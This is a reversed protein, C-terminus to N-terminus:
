GRRAVSCGTITNNLAFGEILQSFPYCLQDPCGDAMVFDQLFDTFATHAGDVTGGIGFQVPVHRQLDQGLVQGLSGVESFAKFPFGM